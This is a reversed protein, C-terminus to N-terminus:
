LPSDQIDLGAQDAQEFDGMFDLAALWAKRTDTFDWTIGVLYAAVVTNIDLPPLAGVPNLQLATAALEIGIRNSLCRLRMFDTKVRDLDRFESAVMEFVKTQNM